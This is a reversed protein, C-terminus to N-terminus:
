RTCSCRRFCSRCASASPTRASCGSNGRRELGRGGRRYPDRGPDPRHVPELRFRLRAGACLGLAAKRGGGRRPLSIWAAPVAGAGIRYADALRVRDGPRRGRNGGRLPVAAPDQRSGFRERRARHLRRFLRSHFLRELTGGLRALAPGHARRAHAPAAVPRRRVVPVGAGASARVAVPVLDAAFATM